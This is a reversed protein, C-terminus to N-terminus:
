NRTLMFYFSDKRGGVEESGEKKRFGGVGPCEMIRGEHCVGEVNEGLCWALGRGRCEKMWRPQGM